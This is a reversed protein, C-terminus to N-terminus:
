EVLKIVCYEAASKGAAIGDGWHFYGTRARGDNYNVLLSFRITTDKRLEPLEIAEVPLRLSYLTRNGAQSIKVFSPDMPGKRKPAQSQALHRYLQPGKSTLAAALETIGSPPQASKDVDYQIGIQVSDGQWTSEGEANQHFGDKEVLVDVNFHTPQWSCRAWAKSRGDYLVVGLPEYDEGTLERWEKGHPTITPSLSEDEKTMRKATGTESYIFRM